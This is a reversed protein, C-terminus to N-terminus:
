ESQFHNNKLNPNFSLKFCVEKDIQDYKYQAGKQKDIFRKILRLGLGQKVNNPDFGKGDDCYEFLYNDKKKKFSIRISIVRDLDNHKYTNTMLENIITGLATATEFNIQHQEINMNLKINTFILSVKKIISSLYRDTDVYGIKSSHYLEEHIQSMVNIRNIAEDYEINPTQAKLKGLSLIGIISHFNNKVRHQIEKLLTEREELLTTLTSNSDELLKNKEEIEKHSLELKKNIRKILRNKYLIVLVITLFFISIYVLKRYDFVQEINVSIWRNSIVRIKKEDINALTKELISNLLPEDKRSAISFKADFELRGAIKLDFIANNKIIHAMPALADIYAFLEGIKVKQLGDIISQVEVIGINPYKQKLLEIYASDKLIGIKKNKLGRSDEIFFEEEKTVIVIPEQMYSPTFNMYKQRSKTNVAMPILDCNGAKLNKLTDSWAVTPVLVFKKNLQQSIISMIDANIGIHKGNKDIEEFPLNNPNVCMTIKNKSSLYNQEEKTLVINKYESYKPFSIGVWKAIINNQEEFSISAIAKNLISLLIPEDNRIGLRSFGSPPIFNFYIVKLGSILAKKDNFLFVEYREFLADVEKKIIKEFTGEEKADVLEICPYEKQLFKAAATELTVAVKKGCYEKLDKIKKQDDTSILAFPAKLYVDTYNLRQEREKTKASDIIGDVEHAMASQLTKPWKNLKKYIKIGTKQSILELFDIQIGKVIGDTDLFSHPIYDSSAMLTISPHAKIWDKEEQTLNLTDKQSLLSNQVATLVQMMSILLLFLKLLSKM